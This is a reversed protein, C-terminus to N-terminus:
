PSYGKVNIAAYTVNSTRPIAVYETKNGGISFTVNKRLLGDALKNVLVNSKGVVIINLSSTGVRSTSDNANLTILHTGMSLNTLNLFPGTGLFGNKSSTWNLSNGSLTGDEYDAATGNFIISDIQAFISGAAPSYITPVPPAPNITANVSAASSYNDLDTVNFYFTHNGISFNYRTFLTGNGFIGDISSKWILSANTLTGDEFDSYSSWFTINDGHTFQQTNRPSIISAVPYQPPKVEASISASVTNAHSDTVTATVTHTGVSLNANLSGGTG